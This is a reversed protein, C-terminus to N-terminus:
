GLEPVVLIDAANRLTNTGGQDKREAKLIEEAADRNTPGVVLLNGQVRLPRGNDGKMTELATRAAKFNDHDLVQKSGYALQWLAFGANVRADVGYIFQKRMFVNQDSPDDMAVFEYGQRKQFILPKIPKSTDLLFWPSGAGGGTNSVSTEVGDILVPHDTDFFYQGDYCKTTFGAKLLDFVLEDPHYASDYGMMEFMPKYTGLTDDRFDDRSVAVTNEFSKNEIAFGHEKLNQIVRDGVWEKFSTTSGLWGYKNEKTNSPVEMAVKNWKPDAANMQGDYLSKFGARASELTESNIQM